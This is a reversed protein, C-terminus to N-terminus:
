VLRPNEWRVKWADHGHWPTVEGRSFCDEPLNIMAAIDRATWGNVEVQVLARKV